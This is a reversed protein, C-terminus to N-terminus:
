IKDETILNNDIDYHEQTNQTISPSPSPEEKKKIIVPKRLIRRQPVNENQKKEDPNKEVKNEVSNKETVTEKKNVIQEKKIEVKEEDDGSMKFTSNGEADKTEELVSEETWKQDNKEPDSTEIEMVPKAITKKNTVLNTNGKSSDNFFPDSNGKIDDVDVKIPSQFLNVARQGTQGDNWRDDVNSVPIDSEGTSVKGGKLTVIENQLSSIVNKMGSMEQILITLAQTIESNNSNSSSNNGSFIKRENIIDDQHIQLMGKAAKETLGMASAYQKIHDPNNSDLALVMDKQKEVNSNENSSGNSSGNSSENNQSQAQQNNQASMKSNINDVLEETKKQGIAGTLSQIVGPLNTGLAEGFGHAAATNLVDLIFSPKRAVASAVGGGGGLRNTVFESLLSSMASEIALRTPDPPPSFIENLGKYAHVFNKISKSTGSNFVDIDVDETERETEVFTKTNQQSNQANQEQFKNYGDMNERSMEQTKSMTEEAARRAARDAIQEAMDISLKPSEPQQQVVPQPKLTLPIM